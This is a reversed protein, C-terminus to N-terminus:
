KKFMEQLTECILDQAKGRIHGTKKHLRKKDVARIQDLMIKVM